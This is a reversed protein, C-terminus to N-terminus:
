HLFRITMPYRFYEGSSAAVTGRIVSIFAVVAWALWAVMGIGTVMGLALLIVGTIAMNIVERGHDDIFASTDRRSLWMILPAAVAFPGVIMAGLLVSLHMWMSWNRDTAALGRDQLRGTATQM